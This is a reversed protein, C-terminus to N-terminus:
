LRGADPRSTITCIIGLTFHDSRVLRPAFEARAQYCNKSPYRREHDECDKEM